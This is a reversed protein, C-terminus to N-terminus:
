NVLAGHRGPADAIQIVHLRLWVVRTRPEPEAWDYNEAEGWAADVDTEEPLVLISGDSFLLGLRKSM